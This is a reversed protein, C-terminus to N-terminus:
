VLDVVVGWRIDVQDYLMHLKAIEKSFESRFWCLDNVPSGVPYVGPDMLREFTMQRPRSTNPIWVHRLSEGHNALREDFDEMTPSRDIPDSCQAFPGVYVSNHSSV